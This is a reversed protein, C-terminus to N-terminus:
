KKLKKAKARSALSGSTQKWGPWHEWLRKIPSSIEDSSYTQRSDQLDLGDQEHDTIKKKM